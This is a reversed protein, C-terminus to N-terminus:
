LVGGNWVNQQIWIQLPIVWLQFDFQLVREHLVCNKSVDGIEKDECHIYFQHHKSSNHREANALARSHLPSFLVKWDLTIFQIPQTQRNTGPALSLTEIPGTESSIVWLYELVLHILSKNSTWTLLCVGDRDLHAVWRCSSLNWNPPQRCHRCSGTFGRIGGRIRGYLRWLQWRCRMQIMPGNNQSTSSFM